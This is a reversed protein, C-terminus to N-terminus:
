AKIGYVMENVVPDGIVGPEHAQLMLTMMFANDSDFHWASRDGSRRSPIREVVNLISTEGVIPATPINSGANWQPLLKGAIQMSYFLRCIVPKKM